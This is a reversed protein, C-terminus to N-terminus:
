RRWILVWGGEPVAVYDSSAHLPSEYYGGYVASVAFSYTGAGLDTYQVTYARGSDDEAPDSVEAEGLLTWAEEGYGRYYVRYATPSVSSGAPEDWQLRVASATSTFRFVGAEWYCGHVGAAALLALTLFLRAGTWKRYAPPSATSPAPSARPNYPTNM